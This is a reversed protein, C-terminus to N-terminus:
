MVNGDKVSAPTTDGRQWEARVASVLLAVV